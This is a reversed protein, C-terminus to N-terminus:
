RWSLTPCAALARPHHAHLPAPIPHSPPHALVLVFLRCDEAGFFFVVGVRACALCVCMPLPLNATVPGTDIFTAVLTHYGYPMGQVSYFWAWYAAEDFADVYQQQLPLVAVHYSAATAQAVWQDWPTRIVGYPPPWYTAGFPNKDTSECVYLEDGDWM